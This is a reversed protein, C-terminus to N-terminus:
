FNERVVGVIVSAKYSRMTHTRTRHSIGRVHMILVGSMHLNPRDVITPLLKNHYSTLSPIEYGIM